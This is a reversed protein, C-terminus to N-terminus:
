MVDELRSINPQHRLPMLSFVLQVPTLKRDWGQELFANCVKLAHSDATDILQRQERHIHRGMQDLLVILAVCGRPTQRWHDLDGRMASAHLSGFRHKVDVDLAAQAATGAPVFWRADYLADPDGDFWFSLVAELDALRQRCRWAVVGGAAIAVGTASAIALTSIHSTM